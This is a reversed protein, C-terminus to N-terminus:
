GQGGDDRWRDESAREWNPMYQGPENRERSPMENKTRREGAPRRSRRKGMFYSALALKRIERRTFFQLRIIEMGCSLRLEYVPQGESNRMPVVESKLFDASREWIWEPPGGQVLPM